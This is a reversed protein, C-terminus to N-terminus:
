NSVLTITTSIEEIFTNRATGDKFDSLDEQSLCACYVREFAGNSFIRKEISEATFLSDLLVSSLLRYTPVDTRDILDVGLESFKKLRYTDDKKEFIDSVTLNGLISPILGVINKEFFEKGQKSVTLFEPKYLLDDLDIGLKSYIHIKSLADIAHNVLIIKSSGYNLGTKKMIFKVTNGVSKPTWEGNEYCLYLFDNIISLINTAKSIQPIAMVYPCYRLITDNINKDSYLPNRKSIKIEVYEKKTTDRLSEITGNSLGVAVISTKNKFLEDEFTNSYDFYTREIRNMVNLSIPKSIAKFCAIKKAMMIENNLNNFIIKNSSNAIEKYVSKSANKIFEEISSFYVKSIAEIQYIRSAVLDSAASCYGISTTVKRLRSLMKTSIDIERGRVKALTQLDSLEQLLGLRNISANLVTFSITGSPPPYPPKGSNSAHEELRRTIRVSTSDFLSLISMFLEFVLFKIKENNLKYNNTLRGNIGLDNIINCYSRMARIISPFEESDKFIDEIKIDNFETTFDLINPGASQSSQSELSTRLLESLNRRLVNQNSESNIFSQVDFNNLKISEFTNKLASKDLFDINENYENLPDRKTDFVIDKLRYFRDIESELLSTGYANSADLSTRAGLDISMMNSKLISQSQLIKRYEEKTKVVPRESTSAATSIDFLDNISNDSTPVTLSNLQNNQKLKLIKVIAKSTGINSTTPNGNDYYKQRDVSLDSIKTPILIKNRLSSMNNSNPTEVSQNFATEFLIRKTELASLNNRKALGVLLAFQADNIFLNKKHPTWGFLADVISDCARSILNQSSLFDDEPSLRIKKILEVYSNLVNKNTNIKSTSNSFNFTLDKIKKGIFENFFGEINNRKDIEFFGINNNIFIDALGSINSSPAVTEILSKTIIGIDNNIVEFISQRNISRLAKTTRLEYSLAEALIAIRSPIHEPLKKQVTLFSLKGTILQQSALLELLDSVEDRKIKFADFSDYVNAQTSTGLGTELTVFGPLASLLSLSYLISSNNVKSYNQFGLLTSTYDINTGQPDESYSSKYERRLSTTMTNISKKNRLLSLTKYLKNRESTLFSLEHLFYKIKTINEISVNIRNAIDPYVRKNRSSLIDKYVNVYDSEEIKSSFKRYLNEEEFIGIAPQVLLVIEPKKQSINHVSDYGADDLTSVDSMDDASREIEIGSQREILESFGTNTGVYGDDPNYPTSVIGNITKAIPQSNLISRNFAKNIPM